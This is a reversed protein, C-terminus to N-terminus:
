KKEGRLYKDFWAQDWQMKALRHKYEMITHGANPYIVLESDVKLYRSLARHLAKSNTAPVREDKEGVHILTPTSFKDTLQYLPSAKQYGSAQKWPLGRMYNIVHGPTDEEGWQITMDFVGAGSSAAKFRNSKTILCNTLFGGNSWGMVGLREPDAIGKEILADIGKLIDDVEIDNERGILDTLFKDGYGTSGRYNPCFVAYGKASFQTRGYIWFQFGLYDSATPGGHINVITPLRTGPKYGPPLELIGEVEDGNAGKWTVKSLQPLKWTDIQPNVNTLRQREGRGEASGLFIDRSYTLGTQLAAIQKGDASLSFADIVVEDVTLPRTVPSETGVREVVFVRKTAHHDGLFCVEDDKGRWSIGDGVTIGAYIDNPRPMKRIRPEEQDWTAVLLESPYGDYHVSFALHRGNASWSPEQLWGHPSPAQKRWLEDALSSIKTTKVDLIDVRSNGELSILLDDATTILAIRREDPSVDFSHIFRNEDYVKTTRWSSVDLKWLETVQHVGQGYKLDSFDDLLKKWEGTTHKHSTSYYLSKGDASLRFADVGDPARTMPTLRRTAVDLQWVQTTGDYPPSKEGERKPNSTFFISKGDPSWRPHDDKSPEITLRQVGKSRADVLWLDTNPPEKPGQFRREVYVVSAGDPSVVAESIFGQTFYDEFVIDHTRESDQGRACTAGMLGALLVVCAGFRNM